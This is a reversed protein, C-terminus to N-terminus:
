SSILANIEDMMKVGGKCFVASCLGTPDTFDEEGTVCVFTVNKARVALTIEQLMRKRLESGTNDGDLTEDM